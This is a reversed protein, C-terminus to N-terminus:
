KYWHNIEHTFQMLDAMVQLIQLTAVLAALVAPISRQRM